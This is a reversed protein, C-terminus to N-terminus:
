PLVAEYRFYVAGIEPAVRKVRGKIYLQHLLNRATNPKFNGVATLEGPRHPGPHAILWAYAITEFQTLKSPMTM